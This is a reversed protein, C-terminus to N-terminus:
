EEDLGEERDNAHRIYYNYRDVIVINLIILLPIMVLGFNDRSSSELFPITFGIIFAFLLNVALYLTVIIRKSIAVAISERNLSELSWFNLFIMVGISVIGIVAGIIPLLPVALGILFAFFLLSASITSVFIKYKLLSDM